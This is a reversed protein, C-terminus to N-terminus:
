DVNKCIVIKKVQKNILLPYGPNQYAFFFRIYFYFHLYMWYIRNLSLPLIGRIKIFLFTFLHVFLSIWSVYMWRLYERYKDKKKLIFM